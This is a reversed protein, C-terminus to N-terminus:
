GYRSRRRKQASQSRTCRAVSRIPARDRKRTCGADAASIRELKQWDTPAAAKHTQGFMGPALSLSLTAALAFRPTQAYAKRLPSQAEHFRSSEPRLGNIITLVRPRFGASPAPATAAGPPISVDKLAASQEQKQSITEAWTYLTLDCSYPVAALTKPELTEGTALVRDAAVRRAGDVAYGYEIHRAKEPSLEVSGGKDLRVTMANNDAIREVTALDGQRIRNKRDSATFQIRKGPAIERTEERYVASEKTQTRLYIPNYSAHSRDQTEVTLVNKKADIEVVTAMSNHPIGQLEPSGIRYQIKDGPEYNAALKSNSLKREVLVPIERAEPALRRGRVPPASSSPSSKVSM